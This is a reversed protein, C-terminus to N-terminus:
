FREMIIQLHKEYLWKNWYETDSSEPLTSAAALANVEAVLEEIAPQVGTKYDIKGLKVDM